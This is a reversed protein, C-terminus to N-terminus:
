EENKIRMVWADSITGSHNIATQRTRAEDRTAFGNVVVYYKGDRQMVSADTIGKDKLESTFRRASEEPVGSSLVVAYNNEVKKPTVKVQLTAQPAPKRIEPAFSATQTAPPTATQDITTGWLFFMVVSAAITAAYNAIRRNLRITIQKDDAKISTIPIRREPEAIEEPALPAMHFTDLGYFDPTTTGAECSDFTTVGDRRTFVGLSGFDVSGEADLQSNWAHVYEAIREAAEEKNIHYVSQMSGLLMDASATTGLGCFRVIRVPPVFLEETESWTSPTRQAIFAGMHPVEVCDTALLLYEIHLALENM